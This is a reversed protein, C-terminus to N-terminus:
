SDKCGSSARKGALRRVFPGIRGPWMAGVLVCPVWGLLMWLAEVHAGRGGDDLAPPLVLPQLAFLAVLVCLWVLLGVAAGM